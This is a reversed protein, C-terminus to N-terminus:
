RSEVAYSPSLVISVPCPLGMHIASYTIDLGSADNLFLGCRNTKQGVQRPCSGPDNAIRRLTVDCRDLPAITKAPQHAIRILTIERIFDIHKQFVNMRLFPVRKDPPHGLADKVTRDILRFADIEAEPPLITREAPIAAHAADNPISVAM